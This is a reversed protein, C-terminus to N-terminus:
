EKEMTCQLPHNEKYALELVMKVKTEAIERPYVGCLGIGKAHVELMIKQALSQNMAFIHMLLEVVFEMPTYDDNLLLVKYLPPRKPRARSKEVVLGTGPADQGQSKDSGAIWRGSRPASFILMRFSRAFWM